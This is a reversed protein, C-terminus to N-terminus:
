KKDEIHFFDFDVSGGAKKTAYNFLGFRYGMFHPLTYTMKLPTGISTWSNGNLSYYFHATDKRDTFDCTAKLYVKDATLPLSQAEVPVGTGANIMVINRSGNIIKVGVLGYNKQLLSLGAFDGEKM